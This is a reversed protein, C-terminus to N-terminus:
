RGAIVPVLVGNGNFDAVRIFGTLKCVCGILGEYFQGCPQTLNAIHTAIVDNAVVVYGSLLTREVKNRMLTCPLLELLINSSLQQVLDESPLIM